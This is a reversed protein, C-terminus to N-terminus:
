DKGSEPSDWFNYFNFWQLPQECCLREIRKVFSLIYKRVHLGRDEKPLIVRDFLLDMSVTYKRCGTRVATALVVRCGLLEALLWPSVPFEAEDGLFPVRCARKKVGPPHRDALIAIHEGRNVSAQLEIVGSYDGPELEIVRLNSNPNLEELFRNIQKAHSRYMVVHIPRALGLALVRMVDFSGLHSGVLLVGTKDPHELLERGTAAIQFQEVKGQWLLVRELLAQAFQLHHLYSQALSAAPASPNFRNLRALYDRSAARSKSGTIFFYAVIPLLLSSAIRYGLVNLTFFLSRIAWVSGREPMTTWAASVM